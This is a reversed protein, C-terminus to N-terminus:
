LDDIKVLPTVDIPFKVSRAIFCKEHAKKHLEIALSKMSADAVTVEPSLEVRRFSASGDEDDSMKGKANDIYAQVIVGYEACLHLYWLMHCASLSAVLLEEPNYNDPNGLFAPDSSGEIIKGNNGKVLYSREYSHYTTTGKGSNGTWDIVVSYFHQKSM